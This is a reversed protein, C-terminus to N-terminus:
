WVVSMFTIFHPRASFNLIADLIAALFAFKLIYVFDTIHDYIKINLNNLHIEVHSHDSINDLNSM